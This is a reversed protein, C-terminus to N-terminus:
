FCGAGRTGCGGFLFSEESPPWEEYPLFRRKRLKETLVDHSLPESKPDREAEQKM